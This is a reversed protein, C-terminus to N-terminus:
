SERKFRTALAGGAIAIGSGLATILTAWFTHDGTAVLAAPGGTAAGTQQSPNTGSTGAGDAPDAGGDPVNPEQGDPQQTGDTGGDPDGSGDGPEQDSGDGEGSGDGPEQDGGEPPTVEGEGGSGDGGEPPTTEGSGGGTLATHPNLRVDYAVVSFSAPDGDGADGILEFVGDRSFGVLQGNRYLEWATTARALEDSPMSATVRLADGVIEVTLAPEVTGNEGVIEAYTKAGNIIQADTNLSYYKVKRPM